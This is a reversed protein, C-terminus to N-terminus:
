HAGQGFGMAAVRATTGLATAGKLAPGGTVSLAIKGADAALQKWSPGSYGFADKAAKEQIELQQAFKEDSLKGEQHAKTLM